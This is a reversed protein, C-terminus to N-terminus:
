LKILVSMKAMITKKGFKEFQIVLQYDKEEAKEHIEVIEGQGFKFHKIKDGSKFELTYPENPDIDQKIHSSSITPKYNPQPRYISAKKSEVSDFLAKVKKEKKKKMYLLEPSLEKLFSSPSNNTFRGNQLRTKTSSIYLREKARTIAVYLLRREEEMPTLNEDKVSIARYSPLIGEEFGVIFVISFELGKASHMTMLTVVNSSDEMNDIDAVLAVEQLFGTLSNKNIEEEQSNEYEVAKSIFEGLNERRIRSDETLEKELEGRYGSHELVYDIFESIPVTQYLKNFSEILNYFQTISKAKRGIEPINLSNSLAEYFSINNERAYEGVKMITADGIGRKPVNIIRRIAVEDNPNEIAKLYAMIDKIERRSYFNIGGYIRYPISLAILQEEAVRSLSNNRYLIAFDKYDHGKKVKELIKNVVYNGEERDSSCKEYTILEGQENETWLKKNKRTPNNVIVNNALDLINKTSRYNQELKVVKTNEFDKEFNLINTIDAGRWGYISQDDDGVVCLNKHESSLLKILKYQSVSTDQYEDVMVYKFRNSYSKLVEPYELFLQVTRSILDDFDLADNIKLKSEYEKYVDSIQKKMFDAQVMEEYKKANILQDKQKSIENKIYKPTLVEDNIKFEKIIDKIIKESDDADYITFNSSYGLHHIHKRLIRVCTSHFTSVLIKNGEPTLEKIRQKMEKAAKNTFTFALINLPNVGQEIIYAMRHTLVRTKGSGAGAIILLAGETHLVAEKQMPNLQNIKDNIM